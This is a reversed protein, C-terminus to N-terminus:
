KSKDKLVEKNEIDAAKEKGGCNHYRDNTKQLLKKEM